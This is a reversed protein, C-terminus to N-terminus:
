KTQPDFNASKVDLHRVLEGELALFRYVSYNRNSKATELLVSNSFVENISDLVDLLSRQGVNFQMIYMDRSQQSYDLAEQHKAVSQVAAEYEAWATAVQRALDDQTNRLDAEAEQVRSGAAKTSYYDSTGNFLNWNVAVMARNDQLWDESGDLRDTNRSSLELDVNPMFSASSVDKDRMSAEVEAKYVKVKPNGVMTKDMVGDMTGPFYDPHYGAPSLPGPHIGTVRFYQAEAARLNGTYSILTTEARAVRGRAQMEDAKSGAGATVREAISDLIEQHARINEGALTTLKRERVIDIHARVADLAVTEVNDYLRYEASELRAQSGQYSNYRDLGDFVNQTLTVTSDAATRSRGDTGRGRTTNSSYKQLGYDASFDLSPFFRGLAASLNNSVADRNHLLSKIQPHQKVAATVSEKLSTAGDTGAMAPLACFLCILASLLLRKM